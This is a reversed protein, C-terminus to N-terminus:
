RCKMADSLSALLTLASGGYGFVGRTPSRDDCARTDDTGLRRSPESSVCGLFCVDRELDYEVEVVQQLSHRHCKPVTIVSNSCVLFFDVCCGLHHRVNWRFLVAEGLTYEM